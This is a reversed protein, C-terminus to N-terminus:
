PIAEMATLNWGRPTLEAASITYRRGIADTLSDTVDLIVGPFAPLKIAWWPARTNSPLRGSPDGAEGKTGLLISAPWATMLPTEPATDEAPAPTLIRGGYGRAGGRDQPDNSGARSASLAANCEVCEAVLLPDQAAIFHALGNPDVLYDGVATQTYDFSGFRIADKYAGPRVLKLNPETAFFAPLAGLLSTPDVPALPDAPRYHQNAQGLVQAAKAYGKSVKGQISAYNAM